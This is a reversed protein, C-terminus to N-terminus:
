IKQLNKPTTEQDPKIQITPLQITKVSKDTPQSSQSHEIESM